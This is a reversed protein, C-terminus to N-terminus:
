AKWNRWRRLQSRLLGKLVELEEKEYFRIAYLFFPYAFLLLCKLGINLWLFPTQILLSVGYTGGWTLALKAM